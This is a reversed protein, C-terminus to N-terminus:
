ATSGRRSGECRRASSLIYVGAGHDRGGFQADLLREVREGGLLHRVPLSVDHLARRSRHPRTVCIERRAVAESKESWRARLLCVHLDDVAREEDTGLSRAEAHERPKERESRM